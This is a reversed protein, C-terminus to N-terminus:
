ICPPILLSPHPKIPSNESSVFILNYIFVLYSAFSQSIKLRHELSDVRAKKRSALDVQILLSVSVEDLVCLSCAQLASAWAQM